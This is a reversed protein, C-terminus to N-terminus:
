AASTSRRALRTCNRSSISLTAVLFDPRFGVGAFRGVRRADADARAARLHGSFRRARRGRPKRLAGLNRWLPWFRDILLPAIRWRRSTWRPVVVGQFVDNLVLLWWFSCGTVSTPFRSFFDHRSVFLSLVVSSAIISKDGVCGQRRRSRTASAVKDGVRGQRRRSADLQWRGFDRM